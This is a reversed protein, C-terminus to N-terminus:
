RRGQEAIHEAGRGHARYEAFEGKEPPAGLDLRRQPPGLRAGADHRGLRSRRDRLGGCINDFLRLGEIEGPELALGLRDAVRDQRQHTLEGLAGALGPAPHMPAGRRLVDHVGRRHQLDAGAEFQDFGVQCRQASM